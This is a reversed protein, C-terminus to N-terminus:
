VHAKPTPPPQDHRQHPKRTRRSAAVVMAIAAPLYCLGITFGSILVFVGLVVASIVRTVWRRFVCPVAAVLVPLLVPILVWAGNADILTRSGDLSSYFPFTLLFVAAGIALALSLATFKMAM